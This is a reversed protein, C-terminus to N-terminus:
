NPKYVAAPLDTILDYSESQIVVEHLLKIAFSKLLFDLSKLM